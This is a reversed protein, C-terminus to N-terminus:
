HESMEDVAIAITFICLLHNNKSQSATKEITRVYFTASAFLLALHFLFPFAKPQLLSCYYVGATHETKLGNTGSHAGIGAVIYVTKSAMAQSIVKGSVCLKEESGATKYSKQWVPSRFPGCETYLSLLDLWQPQVVEDNQLLHPPDSEASCLLNNCTM